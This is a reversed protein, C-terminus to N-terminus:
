LSEADSEESGGLAAAMRAHWERMAALTMEESKAKAMAQGALLIPLLEHRLPQEIAECWECKIKALDCWEHHKASKECTMRAVRELLRGLEQKDAM